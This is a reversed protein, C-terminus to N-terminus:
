ECIGKDGTFEEVVRERRGMNGEGERTGEEEMDLVRIDEGPIEHESGETM